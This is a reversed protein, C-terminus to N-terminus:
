PSTLFSLIEDKRAMVDDFALTMNKLMPERHQWGTIPTLDPKLVFTDPVLDSSAVAEDVLTLISRRLVDVFTVPYWSDDLKHLYVAFIKDCGARRLVTVPVQDRVGGDVLLWQRHRIPTFLGPLACSGVIEKALDTSAEAFGQKVAQQDNTFAISQTSYLDTAVIYFPMKPLRRQHLKRVFRQLHDGRFLGNPAPIERGQWRKRALNAVSSVLPFGYDLLIRAPVRGALGRFEDLAYGHAYLSAVISGSSAGAVVDPKIGLSELGFLVGVHASGALDAGCLAIGIRARRM